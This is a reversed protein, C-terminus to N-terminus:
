GHNYVNPAANYGTVELWEGFKDELVRIQESTLQKKWSGSEGSNIHNYHLLSHPDYLHGKEKHAIAIKKIREVQKELSFLSAIDEAEKLSVNLGVHAALRLVENPLDDIMREYRSVMINPLRTWLRYDAIAQDLWKKEILEEFPMEFKKIASVAVDRIDRFSYVGKAQRAEFLKQIEETCIHAKFVKLAQEERYSTLLRGFENEPVDEIRRGARCNEVLESVIQYQLTSGSRIMGCCFIWM